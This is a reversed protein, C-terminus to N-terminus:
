LPASVQETPQDGIGVHDHLAKRDSVHLRDPKAVLGQTLDVWADHHGRYSRKSLRARPFAVLGVVEDGECGAPEHLDGALGVARWHPLAVILGVEGACLVGRSGYEAGQVVTVEVAALSLVDVHRQLLRQDGVVGVGM